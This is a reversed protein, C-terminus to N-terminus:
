LMRRGLLLLGVGLILSFTILSGFPNNLTLSNFQDRVWQASSIFSAGFQNSFNFSTPIDQLANEFGSGIDTEVDIVDNASSSFENMTNDLNDVTSQTEDDIISGHYPIGFNDCFDQSEYGMERNSHAYIPMILCDVDAYLYVNRTSTGNNSIVLKLLRTGNTGNYAFTNLSLLSDLQGNTISFYDEFSTSSSAPKNIWLIITMTSNDGSSYLYKHTIEGGAPVSFVPITWRGLNFLDVQNYNRGATEIIFNLSEYPFYYQVYDTNVIKKVSQSRINRFSTISEVNTNYVASGYGYSGNFSFAVDKYQSTGDTLYCTVRLTVTGVYYDDLTLSFTATDAYQHIISIGLLNSTSLTVSEYEDGYVSFPMSFLIGLVILSSFLIGKVKIM